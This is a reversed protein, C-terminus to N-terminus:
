KLYKTIKPIKIIKIKIPYWFKEDWELIKPYITYDGLFFDTRKQFNNLYTEFLQRAFYFNKLKIIGDIHIIFIKIFDEEFEITKSSWVSQWARIMKESKTKNRFKLIKSFNLSKLFSMDLKHRKGRFFNQFKLIPLSLKLLLFLFILVILFEFIPSDIKLTFLILFFIALSFIFPINLIEYLIVMKSFEKRERSLKIEAFIQEGIFIFIIM